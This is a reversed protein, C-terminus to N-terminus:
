EFFKDGETKWQIKIFGESKKSILHLVFFAYLVRANMGQGLPGKTIIEYLSKKGDVMQLLKTEESNLSLGIVDKLDFVPEYIATKQGLRQLCKKPNKLGKIGELIAKKIPISIKILEEEKHRGIEFFVKGYELDFCVYVISAIQERVYQYLDKPTLVGMNVLIKGQRGEGRKLRVVSEDYQEKTIIGKYLLFEGLREDPNNSTAFIINGESIYIKREFKDDKVYIVGAVKYKEITALIEPLPSNSIEDEYLYEKGM